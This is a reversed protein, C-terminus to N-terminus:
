VQALLELGPQTPARAGLHLRPQPGGGAPGPDAEAAQLNAALAGAPGAAGGRPRHAEVPPQEQGRGLDEVVDDLVLHRMEANVVVGLAEPAQERPAAGVVPGVLTPQAVVPM